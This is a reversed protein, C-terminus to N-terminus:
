MGRGLKSLDMAGLKNILDTITSKPLALEAVLNEGDVSFKIKALLAGVGPLMKEGQEGVKKLGDEVLKIAEKPDKKMADKIEKAFPPFSAKVAYDAGADTVTAAINQKDLKVWIVSGDSGGFGAGGAKGTFAAKIAEQTKGFMMLNGTFALVGKDIKLYTVGGDESKTPATGTAVELIKMMNDALSGKIKATDFSLAIMGDNGGLICVGVEQAAGQMNADKGLEELKKLKEQDVGAKGGLQGMMKKQMDELTKMLEPTSIKAINAYVRGGACDAPLVKTVESSSATGSSPTSPSPATPTGGAKPDLKDKDAVAASGSTSPAPAKQATASEGAKGSEPAAAKKQASSSGSAAAASSSDPTAGGSDGCGAALAGVLVFPTCLSLFASKSSRM